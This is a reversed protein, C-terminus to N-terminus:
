PGDLLPGMPSPRGLFHGEGFHRGAPMQRSRPGEGQAGVCQQAFKRRRARDEGEEGSTGAFCRVTACSEGEPGIKGRRTVQAQLPGSNELGPVQPPTM